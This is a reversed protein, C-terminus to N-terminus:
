FAALSDTWLSRGAVFAESGASTWAASTQGCRAGVLLLAGADFLFFLPRAPPGASTQGCRAGVLLLAGAASLFFLPRVPQGYATGLLYNLVRPRMLEPATPTTADCGSLMRSLGPEIGLRDMGMHASRQDKESLTQQADRWFRSRCPVTKLASARDRGARGAKKSGKQQRRVGKTPERQPCLLAAELRGKQQRRVGKTEKRKREAALALAPLSAKTAPRERQVAEASFAIRLPYKLVRPRSLEPATPTTADCGSLMRSPSPEIRPRDMGM